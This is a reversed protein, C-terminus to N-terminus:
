VWFESTPVTLQFKLHTLLVEEMELIESVGHRTLIFVLFKLCVFIPVSLPSIYITTCRILLIFPPLPFPGNCTKQALALNKWVLTPFM